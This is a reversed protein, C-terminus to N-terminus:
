AVRVDGCRHHKHGNSSSSALGASGKGQQQMGCSRSRPPSTDPPASGSRGFGAAAPLVDAAAAAPHGENTQEAITDSTAHQLGSSHGGVGRLIGLETTARQLQQAHLAEATRHTLPLSARCILM